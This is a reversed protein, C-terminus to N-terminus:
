INSRRRRVMLGLMGLGSLMMAWESAEPVPNVVAGPAGFYDLVGTSTNLSFYGGDNNTETSSFFDTLTAPQNGNGASTSIRFLEANTGANVFTLNPQGGALLAGSTATSGTTDLSSGDTVTNLHNGQFAPTDPTISVETSRENLSNQFSAVSNARTALTNNSPLTGVSSGPTSTLFVSKSGLGTNLGDSDAGIVGFQIPTNGVSNTIFTSWYPSAALNFSQNNSTNFNTITIGLDLVFSNNNNVTYVVAMLEGAGTSPLILAAQASMASAAIASGVLLKKFSKM